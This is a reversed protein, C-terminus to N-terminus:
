HSGHEPRWPKGQLRAKWARWVDYVGGIGSGGKLLPEFLSAQRCEVRQALADATQQLASSFRANWEMPSQAHGDEVLLPQGFCAFAEAFRENWFAYELALPLMAFRGIRHALHGVGAEIRIPRRRVDTFAGQPTVWLAGNCRGLVEEGIQLFRAAGSRTSPNIGFFGFRQFMRYKALGEEAMPAYQDRKKFFRQSLHLAMLPDWWSPHNLCVLVPYGEVQQLDGLRLLHVGHFNRKLYFTVYRDFWQLQRRAVPPLVAAAESKM